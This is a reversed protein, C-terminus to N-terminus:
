LHHFISTEESLHMLLTCLSEFPTLNRADLPHVRFDNIVHRIQLYTWLPLPGTDSLTPIDMRDHFSDDKFLHSAQVDEHHWIKQLFTPSIRPHFGPKDQVPTMPGTSTLLTYKTCLGKLNNLTTQTLPHLHSRNQITTCPAAMPALTLTRFHIAAGSNDLEQRRHSFALGFRTAQCALYYAKFDPLSIGGLHKPKSLQNLSNRAHLRQWIFTSIMKQISAFYSPPLAIPVTQLVYLLKPLM